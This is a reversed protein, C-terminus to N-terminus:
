NNKNLFYFINNFNYCLYTLKDIGSKKNAYKEM